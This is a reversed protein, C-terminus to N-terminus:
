ERMAKVAERTQEIYGHDSGNRDRWIEKGKHIANPGDLHCARCLPVTDYDSARRTGYRDHICHHADNPPPARCVVCPLAKVARMYDLADQGEQSARYAKRKGSVKRMPTKAKLPKTGRPMPTRKM